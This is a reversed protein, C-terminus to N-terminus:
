KQAPFTNIFLVQSNTTPEVIKKDDKNETSNPLFKKLLLLLHNEEVLHYHIQKNSQNSNNIEILFYELV